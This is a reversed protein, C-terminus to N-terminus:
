FPKEIGLEDRAAAVDNQLPIQDALPHGTYDTAVPQENYYRPEFPFLCLVRDTAKAISKVRGPRWAWVTPSVYPIVPISRAKLKKEVRLNFDPADIGIYVDPQTELVREILQRRLGLLRPVHKVVEFLGMISLESCDWWCNMGEAQMQPGGIGTFSTDPHQAIIARILAAGLQDGSAEGAVLTITKPAPIPDM